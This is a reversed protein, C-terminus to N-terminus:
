TGTKILTKASEVIKRREGPKARDWVSWIRQPDAPNRMLLFAPETQLAEAIGELLPQSYPQLGREIRSLSAHTIGIQHALQELTLGRSQRWERVFTPRYREQVRFRGPVRKRMYVHHVNAPRHGYSLMVCRPGIDALSYCANPMRESQWPRFPHPFAIYPLPILDRSGMHGNEALPSDNKAEGSRTGQKTGIGAAAPNKIAQKKKAGRQPQASWQHTTDSSM